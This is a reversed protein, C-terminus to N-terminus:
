EGPDSELIGIIESLIKEAKEYELRGICEELRRGADEAETGALCSSLSEFVIEADLSNAALLRGLDLFGARVEEPGPGELCYKERQWATRGAWTEVSRAVGELSRTASRVLEEPLAGAELANEAEETQRFVETLGLNGAVGKLNHLLASAGDVDGAQAQDAIREFVGKFDTLFEQLLRRYLGFNGGVQALGAQVDLGEPKLDALPPEQAFPKRAPGRGPRGSDAEIWLHLTKLLQDPDIPKSLFDNMGAALSKEKDRDSSRATMAIIPLEHWAPRQRILAAAEFGDLEPMQLDMLVLDFPGERELRELAEGGHGAVIVEVGARELLERVVKQNIRSDEALLVRIGGPDQGLEAAPLAPGRESAGLASVGGASGSRASRGLVRAVTEGLVKRILPKVLVEAPGHIAAESWVKDRNLLGCTFIVPPAASGLGARILRFTKLGDPEPRGADLLALDFPRKGVTQRLASLVEGGAGATEVECGLGSLYQRIVKLVSLRDDAALIRIGTLDPVPALSPSKIGSVGAPVTFYFASGTGPESDVWIRGGMLEVLRRSIPLGLGAGSYKRTSSGDVQSFSEFICSVKDPAIGIGTDRISFELVVRDQNREKLRVVVQVEGRETFKVANEALYVLIQRLRLKDGVLDTPVDDGTLFVLELGKEEAKLGILSALRELVQNLDFPGTELAFRGAELGSFDLIDDIIELLSQSAVLINNLYGELRPPSGGKLALHSMGIVANLPTRIEHSIRSLFDGRARNAAEVEERARRLERALTRVETIDRALIAGGLLAGSEDRLPTVSLAVEVLEGYKRRHVEELGSGAAGRALFEFARSQEGGERDALLLSVPRGLIDQAAYGYLEAAGKNWFVIIGSNAVLIIAESCGRAVEAAFREWTETSVPHEGPAAGTM